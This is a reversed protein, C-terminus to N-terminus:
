DQARTLFAAEPLSKKLDEWDKAYRESLASKEDDQWMSYPPNDANIPFRQLMEDIIAKANDFRSPAGFCDLLCTMADRSLTRNVSEQAHSIPRGVLGTMVAPELDRFAEYQWIQMQAQPLYAMIDRVVDGWGRQASLLLRRARAVDMIKGRRVATTVNSSYFGAYGRVALMVVTDPHNLDLPLAQLRQALDPYLAGQTLNIQSSGLMGEESIVLRSTRATCAEAMMERLRQGTAQCAAAFEDPPLRMSPTKIGDDKRLDRPLLLAVGEQRLARRHHQLVRQIYTTATKHAGLHLIVRPGSNQPPM